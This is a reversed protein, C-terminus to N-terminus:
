GGKGELAHSRMKLSQKNSFLVQSQDLASPILLTPLSAAASVELTNIAVNLGLPQLNSLIYTHLNM